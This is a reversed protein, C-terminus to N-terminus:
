WNKSDHVEELIAYSKTFNLVQCGLEGHRNKRIDVKLKRRDSKNKQLIIGVDCDAAIDGAGKFELNDSTNKAADNSLQNLGIVTASVQKSLNQLRGTVDSLIDYQRTHKGSRCHQLYDVFVVDLGVKLDLAQVINEIEAIERTKETVFFTRQSLWSEAKAINELDTPRKVANKIIYIAPIDTLCAVLRSIIQHKTMETSVMCIKSDSNRLFNIFMNVAFASKGVSTAAGVAWYDGPVASIHKRDLFSFGTSAGTLGGKARMKTFQDICTPADTVDEHNKTEKIGISAIDQIIDNSTIASDIAKSLSDKLRKMKAKEAIGGAYGLCNSVFGIDVSEAIWGVNCIKKLSMAAIVIDVPAGSRWKDLCFRYVIEANKETFDEPEIIGAVTPLISNDKLIAGILAQEM